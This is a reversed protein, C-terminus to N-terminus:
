PENTNSWLVVIQIIDLNKIENRKFDIHKLEIFKVLRVTELVAPESINMQFGSEM